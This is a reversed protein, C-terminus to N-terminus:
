TVIPSCKYHENTICYKPVSFETGYKMLSFLYFYDRFTKTVLEIRQSCCKDFMEDIKCSLDTLLKGSIEENLFSDRDLLNEIWAM